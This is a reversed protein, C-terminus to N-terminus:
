LMSLLLPSYRLGSGKLQQAVVAAFRGGRNARAGIFLQVLSRWERQAKAGRNRRLEHNFVVCQPMAPMMQCLDPRRQLPLPPLLPQPLAECPQGPRKRIFIM